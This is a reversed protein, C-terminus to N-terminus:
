QLSLLVLIEGTGKELPELAKGILTGPRHIQVGGLNVPKSKMAEGPTDSTVLLDGIHIPNKSADVRVRVRGTTAVLAKNEGKEGLAIGPQDSVVGAVRTDYSATSSTVHNSKTSDLIVVTGAPLKGSVPVWEAVDQYKAVINNGTITGNSNIAGNVDLKYLPNATGIGVNGTSFYHIPANYRLYDTSAGNDTYQIYAAEANAQRFSIYPSGTATGDLILLSATSGNYLHLTGSPNTTGVGVNGGNQFTVRDVGGADFVRLDNSSGPVWIGAKNTGAKWFSLQAASAAPADIAVINNGSAANIHLNTSPTTTGIGVNDMTTTNGGGSSWQASVIHSNALLAFVLFAGSMGLRAIRSLMWSEADDFSLFRSLAPSRGGQFRLDVKM